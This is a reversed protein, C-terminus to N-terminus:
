VYRQFQVNRQQNVNWDFDDDDDNNDYTLRQTFHKLVNKNMTYTADNDNRQADANRNHDGDDNTVNTTAIMKTNADAADVDAGEDDFTTETKRHMEEAVIHGVTLENRHHRQQEHDNAAAFGILHMAIGSMNTNADFAFM